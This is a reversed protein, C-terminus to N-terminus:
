GLVRLRVALLAILRDGAGRDTVEVRCGASGEAVAMVEANIGFPGYRGASLITTGLRETWLRAAGTSRRVAGMAAAEALVQMSGSHLRGGATVAAANAPVEFGGGAQPVGAYVETLPLREGAVALHEGHEVPQGYAPHQPEAAGTVVFSTTGQGIVRREDAADEIRVETFVQSRGVRLVRSRFLLESVDTAPDFIQVDVGTPSGQAHIHVNVSAGSLVMIGLPAALIGDPQRLDDRVTFRGEATFETLPVSVADVYSYVIFSNEAVPSSMSIERIGSITSEIYEALARAPLAPM